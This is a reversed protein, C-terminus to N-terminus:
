RILFKNASTKASKLTKYFLCNRGPAVQDKNILFTVKFEWFSSKHIKVIRNNNEWKITELLQM